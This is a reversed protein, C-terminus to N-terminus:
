AFWVDIHRSGGRFKPNPQRRSVWKLGGTFYKLSWELAISGKHILQDKKHRTNRMSKRRNIATSPFPQGRPEQRHHENYKQLKGMHYGPDTTTSSQITKLDKGGKKSKCAFM